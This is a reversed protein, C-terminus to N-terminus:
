RCMGSMPPEPQAWNLRSRRMSTDRGARITSTRPLAPPCMLSSTMSFSVRVMRPQSRVLSACGTDYVDLAGLPGTTARASSAVDDSPSMIVAAKLSSFSPGTTPWRVQPPTTPM